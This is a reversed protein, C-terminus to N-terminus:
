GAQDMVLSLSYSGVHQISSVPSFMWIFPYTTLPKTQRKSPRDADPRASFPISQPDPAHGTKTQKRSPKTKM